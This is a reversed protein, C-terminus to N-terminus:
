RLAKNILRYVTQMAPSDGILEKMGYKQSVEGRLTELEREMSVKEMVNKVVTDLKVLDDQGKTVYDYAGLKMADVAVEIAGQASVMVVHIHPKRKVTEELAAMGGI